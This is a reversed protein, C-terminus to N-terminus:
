AFIQIINCEGTSSDLHGTINSSEIIIRPKLINMLLHHLQQFDVINGLLTISKVHM